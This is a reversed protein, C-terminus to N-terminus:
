TIALGRASRTTRPEVSWFQSSNGSGPSPELFLTRMTGQIDNIKRWRPTRHLSNRRLKRHATTESQAAGASRCALSAAPPYTREELSSFCVRQHGMVALWVCKKQSSPAQVSDPKNFMRTGCWHRGDGRRQVWLANGIASRTQSNKLVCDSIGQLRGIPNQARTNLFKHEVVYTFRLQNQTARAGGNGGLRFNEVRRM